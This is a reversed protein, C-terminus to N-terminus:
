IVIHFNGADYFGEYSKIWEGDTYRYQVNTNLNLVFQPTTAAQSNFSVVWRAAAGDYEIIDNANAILSGWSITTDGSHGIPEVILYRRGNIPGSLGANPGVLRPNIVANVPALTNQPLTDQDIDYILLRDDSPNFRITGVIYNEMYPNELWIQSIGEKVAGYINLFASWYISTDPPTPLALAENPPVFPQDAPLVQLNNGLLMIQYGYPTVKQRTGLILDDDQIDELAQGKFISAIVKHIVGMKKLKAPPSLWIPMYFKWSLIDISNSTGQPVTRSSYGIGDQYVVSLSGWDLFNDSNQIELGPNFLVGIQEFIEHKQQTNTTWIDVTVRLTYPVPMLRELTYAQGQVTEYSQTDQDYARQRIQVKDVFTPSQMRAQDYEIGTIYYTILPASPLNSPSNNNIIAAVQRSMDGYIVPVRVIIPNGSPDTGKTVEWYSFLRAFQVLFRRIQSDYFYQSM